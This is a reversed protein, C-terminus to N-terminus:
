DGAGSVSARSSKEGGPIDIFREGSNLNRSNVLCIHIQISFLMSLCEWLSRHAAHTPGM